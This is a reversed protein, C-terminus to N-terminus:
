PIADPATCLLCSCQRPSSCDLNGSWRSSVQDGADSFAVACVQYKEPLTQVSRKVRLDWVQPVCTREIAGHPSWGTPASRLRCRVKATGDDSGSVVLPPGRKMPCCSNVFNDHEAMKKIQNGTVADWARVSKDSSASILQSEDAMWHLEVVANKHGATRTLGSDLQMTGDLSHVFAQAM